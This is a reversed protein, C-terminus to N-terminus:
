HGWRRRGGLTRDFDGHIFNGHAPPYFGVGCEFAKLVHEEHLALSIGPPPPTDCAFGRTHASNTASGTLSANYARTRFASTIILPKDGGLKRLRELRKALEKARDHAQKKSLNQERMLGAVYQTHAADKCALEKINFNPTLQGPITRWAGPTARIVRKAANDRGWYPQLVKVLDGDLEGTVPRGSIHQVAKVAESWSPTALGAKGRSRAERRLTRRLEAHESTGKQRLFRVLAVKSRRVILGRDGVKTVVVKGGQRGGTGPTVAPKGKSERRQKVPQAERRALKPRLRAIEEEVKAYRSILEARSKDLAHDLRAVRLLLEDESLDALRRQTPAGPSGGNATPAPPVPGEPPPPTIEDAKTVTLSAAGAKEALATTQEVLKATDQAVAKTASVAAAEEREEVEVIEELKGEIRLLIKTMESLGQAIASQDDGKGGKIRALLHERRRSYEVLAEWAHGTDADLETVERVLAPLRAVRVSPKGPTTTTTTHTPTTPTTVQGGQKRRAKEAKVARVLKRASVEGFVGDAVLNHDRQFAKLAAVAEGDFRRRAGALYPAKTRRSHVYALRKTIREVRPGHDGRRILKPASPLKVGAGSAGALVAEWRRSKALVDKSYADAAAGDGNYRAVGRAQGNARINDALVKFGVRINIEPKWCGGLADAQDQFGKFTLQCPGVGQAMGTVKRRQKYEQYLAETVPITGDRAPFIYHGARDRDHGFVNHGGATEKELLACALALPIGARRAESIVVAPDAVIGGARMRESLTSAAM